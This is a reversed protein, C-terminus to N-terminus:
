QLFHKTFFQKLYPRALYGAASTQDRISPIHDQINPIKIM